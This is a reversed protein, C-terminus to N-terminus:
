WPEPRPRFSLFSLQFLLYLQSLLCRHCFRVKLTVVRCPRTDSRQYAIRRAQQMDAAVLTDRVAFYFATRLRRDSCKILDFLRPCDEAHVRTRDMESEFHRQKDLILCSAIGLKNDRLYQVVAQGDTVTEVVIYDLASAANSVAADYTADIAGLDGLRGHIGQLVHLLSFNSLQSTMMLKWGKRWTNGITCLMKESLLAPVVLM